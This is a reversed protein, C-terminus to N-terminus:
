KSEYARSNAIAKQDIVDVLVMTMAVGRSFALTGNYSGFGHTRLLEWKWNFHKFFPRRIEYQKSKEKIRVKEIYELCYLCFVEM